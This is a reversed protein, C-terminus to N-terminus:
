LAARVLSALAAIFAERLAPDPPQGAARAAQLQEIARALAAGPGCDTALAAARPRPHSLAAGRHAAPRFAALCTAHVAASRAIGLKVAMAA